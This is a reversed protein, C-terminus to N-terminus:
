CEKGGQEKWHRHDSEFPEYDSEALRRLGEGNQEIIRQLVRMRREEQETPHVLEKVNKLHRKGNVDTIWYVKDVFPM